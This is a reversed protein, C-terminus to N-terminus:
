VRRVMGILHHSPVLTEPTETETQVQERGQKVPESTQQIPNRKEPSATGFPNAPEYAPRRTNGEIVIQQPSGTDEQRIKAM